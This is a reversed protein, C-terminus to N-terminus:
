DEVFSVVKWPKQSRFYGLCWTEEVQQKVVYAALTLLLSRWSAFCWCLDGFAIPASPRMREIGFARLDAKEVGSKLYVHEPSEVINSGM